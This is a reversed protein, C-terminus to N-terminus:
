LFGVPIFGHSWPNIHGGLGIQKFACADGHGGFPLVNGQEAYFAFHEGDVVQATVAVGFQAIAKHLAVM